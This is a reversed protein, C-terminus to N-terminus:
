IRIHQFPAQKKFSSLMKKDSSHWGQITKIHELVFSAIKRLYISKFPTRKLFIELLKNLLDKRVIQLTSAQQFLHLINEMHKIHMIILGETPHVPLNLDKLDKNNYGFHYLKRADM